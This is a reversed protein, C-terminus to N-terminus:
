LYARFLVPFCSFHLNTALTLGCLRCVQIGWLLSLWLNTMLATRHDTVEQGGRLPKTLISAYSPHCGSHFKPAMCVLCWRTWFFLWVAWQTWKQRVVKKPLLATKEKGPATIKNSPPIVTQRAKVHHGRCGKGTLRCPVDAGGSCPTKDM